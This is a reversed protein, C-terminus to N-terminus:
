KRNIYKRLSIIIIIIIITFKIQSNRPSVNPQPGISCTPVDRTRKRIHLQFKKNVYYKRGCWPRAILETDSLFSYWYFKRPTLAGPTYLQCSKKVKMHRSFDPLRFSRSDELSTWAQIRNIYIKHKHPRADDQYNLLSFVM